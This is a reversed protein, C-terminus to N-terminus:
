KQYGSERAFVVPFPIAILDGLIFTAFVVAMIVAYGPFQHLVLLPAAVAIFWILKYLIELLLVPAFKLPSRLGLISVLAFALFVSGAVGFTIPDEPPLGMMKIMTGPMLLYGLGIAGSVILTYAYMIKLWTWRIKVEEPM